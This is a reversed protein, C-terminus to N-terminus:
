ASVCLLLNAELSSVTAVSGSLFKRSHVGHMYESGRCWWWSERNDWPCGSLLVPVGDGRRSHNMERSNNCFRSAIAHHLLFYISRQIRAKTPSIIICRQFQTMIPFINHRNGNTKATPENDDSVM